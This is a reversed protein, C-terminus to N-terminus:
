AKSRISNLPPVQPALRKLGALRTSAAINTTDRQQPRYISAFLASSVKAQGSMTKDAM